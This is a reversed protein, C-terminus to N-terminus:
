YTRVQFNGILTSDVFYGDPVAGTECFARGVEPPAGAFSRLDSDEDRPAGAGEGNDVVLMGFATGPHFVNSFKVDDILGSVRASRGDPPFEVCDISGHLITAGVVLNWEGNVTGDALRVAHLTLKRLGLGKPVPVGFDVEWHGSGSVSGVVGEGAPALGAVPATPAVSDRSCAAFAVAAGLIVVFKRM